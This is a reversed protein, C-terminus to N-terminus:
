RLPNCHQRVPERTRFSKNLAGMLTSCYHPPCIVYSPQSSASSRLVHIKLTYSIATLLTCVVNVLKSIGSPISKEFPQRIPDHLGFLVSKPLSIPEANTPCQVYHSYELVLLMSFICKMKSSQIHDDQLNSPVAM